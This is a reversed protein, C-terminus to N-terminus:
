GGITGGVYFSASDRQPAELLAKVLAQFEDKSVAEKGLEEVAMLVEPPLDRSEEIQALFKKQMPTM